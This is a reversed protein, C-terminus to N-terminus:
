KPIPTKMVKGAYPKLATWSGSRAGVPSKVIGAYRASTSSVDQTEGTLDQWPTDSTKYDLEGGMTIGDWNWLTLDYTECFPCYGVWAELSVYGGLASGCSSIDTELHLRRAFADQVNWEEGIQGGVYIGVTLLNITGTVTLGALDALSAGVGFTLTASASPYVYMYLCNPGPEGSALWHGEVDLGVSVDAAVGDFVPVSYGYGWSYQIPDPNDMFPDTLNNQVPLIGPIDAGFIKATPTYTGGSTADYVLTGGGALIPVDIGFMTVDLSVQDNINGSALTLTNANSTSGAQEKGSVTTTGTFGAGWRTNDGLGVFASGNGSLSRAPLSKPPPPPQVIHAKVIARDKGQQSKSQQLASLQQTSTMSMVSIPAATTKLLARATNVSNQVKNGNDVFRRRITEPHRLTYGEANLKKEQKNLEQVLKGVEITGYGPITVTGAAPVSPVAKRVEDLTIPVYPIAARPPLPTLTETYNSKKVRTATTRTLSAQPWVLGGAFFLMMVILICRGSSCLKNNM